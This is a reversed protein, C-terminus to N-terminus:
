VPSEIGEREAQRRMAEKMAAEMDADHERHNMELAGKLAGAGFTRNIAVDHIIDGDVATRLEIGAM